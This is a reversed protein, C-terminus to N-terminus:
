IWEDGVFGLLLGVSWFGGWFMGRFVGAPRRVLGAVRASFPWGWWWLALPSCGLLVLGVALVGGVLLPGCPPDPPDDGRSLM